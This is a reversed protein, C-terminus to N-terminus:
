DRYSPDSRDLRRRLGAWELSGDYIYNPNGYFARYHHEQESESPVNVEAGAAQIRLQLACAQDLMYSLLFAEAVTGGAAAFAHNRYIVVKNLPGFADAVRRCYGDEFHFDAEAYGISGRFMFAPESLPLLGSKQASVAMVAPGHAHIVANIDPRARFLHAAPNIAAFNTRANTGDQGKLNELGVRILDSARIEDFFAGHPHTLFWDAGPFRACLSGAALDSLGYHDLLRFGAAVDERLEREGDDRSIM